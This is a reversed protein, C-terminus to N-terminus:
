GATNIKKWTVFPIKHQQLLNMEYRLLLKLFIPLFNLSECYLFDPDCIILVKDTKYTWSIRVKSSPPQCFEYLFEPTGKQKGLQGRFM